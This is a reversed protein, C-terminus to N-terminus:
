RTGEESDAPVTGRRGARGDRSWPSWALDCGREARWGRLADRITLFEALNDATLLGVLEGHRVVPLSQRGAEALRGMVTEVPENPHATPFEPRVVEAVAIRDGHQKLASMLETRDLMGVLRGGEVVPFDQQFGDMMAEVVRSLPDTAPGARM